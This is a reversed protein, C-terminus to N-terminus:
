VDIALGEGLLIKDQPPKDLTNTDILDDDSSDSRDLGIKFHPGYGELRSCSHV